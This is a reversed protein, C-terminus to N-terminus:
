NSFSHSPACLLALPHPFAPLPLFVFTMLSLLGVMTSRGLGGFKTVARCPDGAEESM